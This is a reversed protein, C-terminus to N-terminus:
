SAREQHDGLRFVRVLLELIRIRGKNCHAAVFLHRPSCSYWSTKGHAECAGEKLLHGDREALFYALHLQDAQPTGAGGGKIKGLDLLRSQPLISWSDPTSGTDDSLSEQRFHYGVLSKKGCM